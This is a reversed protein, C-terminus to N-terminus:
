VRVEVDKNRMLATNYIDKLVLAVAKDWRKTGDTFKDEDLRGAGLAKESVTYAADLFAEDIKSGCTIIEEGIKRMAPLVGSLVADCMKSDAGRNKFEAALDKTFQAAAASAMRAYTFEDCKRAYCCIEAELAYSALVGLAWIRGKDNFKSYSFRELTETFYNIHKKAETISHLSIEGATKKPLAKFEIVSM